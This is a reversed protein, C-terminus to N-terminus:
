GAAAVALRRVPGGPRVAHDGARPTSRSERAPAPRALGTRAPEPEARRSDASRPAGCWPGTGAALAQQDTSRAAVRVIPGRRPCRPPLEEVVPAQPRIVVAIGLPPSTRVARHPLIRQVREDPVFDDAQQLIRRAHALLDIASQRRQAGLMGDGHFALAQDLRQAPNAPRDGPEDLRILLFKERQLFQALPHRRQSLPFRGRFRLQGGELSLQHVGLGVHRQGLAKFTEEGLQVLGGFGQRQGIALADDPEKQLFHLHPGVGEHEPM